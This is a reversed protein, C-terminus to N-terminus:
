ELVLMAVLRGLFRRSRLMAPQPALRTRHLRPVPPAALPRPPLENQQTPSPGARAAGRRRSAAAGATRATRPPPLNKRNSSALASAYKTTQPPEGGGQGEGATRPPPSTRATSPSVIRSLFTACTRRSPAPCGSIDRSEGLIMQASKKRRELTPMLGAVSVSPCARGQWFQVSPCARHSCSTM